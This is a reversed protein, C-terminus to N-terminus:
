QRAAIHFTVHSRHICVADTSDIQQHHVEIRKLFRDGFARIKGGTDFVDIDAARRHDARGRFVVRKHIDHCIDGVVGCQCVRKRRVAPLRCAREALPKCLGCVAAGGRIVCGNAM